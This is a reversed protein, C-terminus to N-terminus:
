RGHQRPLQLLSGPLDAHHESDLLQLPGGRWGSSDHELRCCLVWTLSPSYLMFGLDSLPTYCLVWTLSSSYLMFGLDSLPLIAYFGPSLPPTYCLLWTLSPSYLMFGLVTSLLPACCEGLKLSSLVCGDSRLLDALAEGGTVLDPM